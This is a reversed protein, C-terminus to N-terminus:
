KAEQKCIAAAPQSACLTLKLVNILREQSEIRREQREIQAQQEKVANLLEVGVNSEHSRLSSCTSIQNLANRCLPTMGPGGLVSVRISGIVDLKDNPSGTGIGLNGSGDLTM